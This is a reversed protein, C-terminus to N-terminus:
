ARKKGGNRQQEKVKVFWLYIEDVRQIDEQLLPDDAYTVIDQETHHRKLNRVVDCLEAVKAHMIRLDSVLRVEQIELWRGETPMASQRTRNM